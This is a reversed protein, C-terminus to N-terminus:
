HHYHVVVPQQKGLLQELQEFAGIFMKYKNDTHAWAIDNHTFVDSLMDNALQRDASDYFYNKWSTPLEEFRKLAFGNGYIKIPTPTSRVDVTTINNDLAWTFYQKWFTCHNILRTKVQAPLEKDKAKIRWKNNDLSFPMAADENFSYAQSEFNCVVGPEPSLKIDNGNKNIIILPEINGDANQLLLTDGQMSWKGYEFKGFDLTYTKNPQLCLFSTPTFNFESSAKGNSFMYFWIGTDNNKIPLNCGAICITILLIIFTYLRHKM